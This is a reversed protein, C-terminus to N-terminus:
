LWPTINGTAHSRATRMKLNDYAQKERGAARGANPDDRLWESYLLSKARQKILEYGKGKQTWNNVDTSLSLSTDQLVGSFRVEYGGDPIPYLRIQQGWYAYATPQSTSTPYNLTELYSWQVPDLTPKDSSSVTLVLSDFEMIRPIFSADASTYTDQSSSISFSQTFETFFFRESQYHAISDIVLNAIVDSMSRRSENVIDNVLDGYTDAMLLAGL